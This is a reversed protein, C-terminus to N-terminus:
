LLGEQLMRLARKEHAMLAPLDLACTKPDTQSAHFRLSVGSGNFTREFIFRARDLHYDSTIVWAESFHHRLVIPLSMSADELTNLSHATEIFADASVGLKLLEKQTYDTHPLRTRNFHEGFGGTLLIFFDPNQRFLEATLACRELGPSYLAGENTNPSGLVIIVTSAQDNVAKQM